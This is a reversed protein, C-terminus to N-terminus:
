FSYRNPFLIHKIKSGLPRIKIWFRQDLRLHPSVQQIGKWSASFHHICYTNDTVKIELTDWHKPSFWDDSFISIIMPSDQWEQISNCEKITFHSELTQKMILPLEITRFGGFINTFSRGFYYNLCRKIWKVGKEAGLIAAEWGGRSDREKGVFYKLQLLNDFPKLVEVDSDLYIGGYNYLAYFRIYDAVFAYKKCVMAEECWRSHLAHVKKYDWVVIEYDPLYKKWSDYCKQIKEPFPDGSIWCYHIIKPIM